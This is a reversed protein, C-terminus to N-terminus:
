KGKELRVSLSREAMENSMVMMFVVRILSRFSENVEIVKVSTELSCNLLARNAEVGMTAMVRSSEESIVQGISLYSVDSNIHRINDLVSILLKMWGQLQETTIQHSLQSLYTLENLIAEADVRKQESASLPQLQELQWILSTEKTTNRGVLLLGQYASENIFSYAQWKYIHGRHNITLDFTVGIEGKLAEQIAQHCSIPMFDFITRAKDSDPFLIRAEVNMMEIETVENCFIIASHISETLLKFRYDKADILSKNQNNKLQIQQLEKFPLLKEEHQYSITEIPNFILSKVQRILLLYFGFLIFSVVCIFPFASIITAFFYSTKQSIILQLNARIPSTFPFSINSESLTIDIDGGKLLFRKGGNDYISMSNVQAVDLLENTLALNDNLSIFGYLFGINKQTDSVIKKKRM